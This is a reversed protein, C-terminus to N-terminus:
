AKRSRITSQDMTDMMACHKPHKVQLGPIRTQERRNSLAEIDSSSIAVATYTSSPQLLTQEGITNKMFLGQWFYQAHQSHLSRMIRFSIWVCVCARVCMCARVYARVCVCKVTFEGNFIIMSM